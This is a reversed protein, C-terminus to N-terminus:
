VGRSDGAEHFRKVHVIGKAGARVITKGGEVMLVVRQSRGRVFVGASFVMPVWCLIQFLVINVWKVTVGQDIWIGM